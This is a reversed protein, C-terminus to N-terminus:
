KSDAILESLTVPTLDQRELEDLVLKMGEYTDDQGWHCLIIDGPQIGETANRLCGEPTQGKATDAFSKSWMAIRYGEDAAIEKVRSSTAGYPPRLYPAQNGTVASIAKQSRNLQERIESESADTLDPHDWSHNAIEFGSKHLRRVIEPNDEVVEGLLFTTCRIGREEFLDLIREDFPLGDDLTIAVYRHKPTLQAYSKPEVSGPDPYPLAAASVAEPINSVPKPKPKPAPEPAAKAPKSSKAAVTAESSAKKTAAAALQPPEPQPATVVLAFATAGAGLV